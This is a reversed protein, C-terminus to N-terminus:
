WCAKEWGPAQSWKQFCESKTDLVLPITSYPLQGGILKQQNIWSGAWPASVTLEVRNKGEANRVPATSIIPEPGFVWVSPQNNSWGATVLWTQSLKAAAYPVFPVNAPHQAVFLKPDVQLTLGNLDRAPAAIIDARQASLHGFVEPVTLEEGLTLGIRGISTPVVVFHQGPTVWNQGAAPHTAQYRAIIQGSPNALAVTHFTQENIKQAYSGAVYGKGQRALNTMFQESPGGEVELDPTGQIANSGSRFLAPLVLLGGSPPPDYALPKNPSTAAQAALKPKFTQTSANADTPSRHLALLGYLEPRRQELLAQRVPATQAVDIQATVFGNLGPKFTEPPFVEAQAIKDGIPSWISSGGNYYLKQNTIPNTEIGNRTAAVVWAGSFKSLYQVNAVTSHNGTAESAPTGPMVRDSASSWAIVDVDHLAALRGFQWYTDDYCILLMIRGLETDFVPFGTNGQSVWRQDQSNLGHKRYKGIYGKPGILAVTNFGLGSDADLEAIGVTVYINRDATVKELAATTKGPITDLYPRVMEFNDFIYGVTAQEPFVLLRAGSDAVQNAAAAIRAINGELDGWQPDYAVAAAKFPAPPQKAVVTQASISFIVLCSTLIIKHIIKKM